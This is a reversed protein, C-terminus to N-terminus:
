GGDPPSHHPRFRHAALRGLASELAAKVAARAHGKVPEELSDNLLLKAGQHGEPGPLALFLPVGGAIGTMIFDQFWSQRVIKLPNGVLLLSIGYDFGFGPPIDRGEIEAFVGSRDPRWDEGFIPLLRWACHFERCPAPREPYITCGKLCHPCTVGAAKRLEPREIALLTCCLTCDGCERGALPETFDTM